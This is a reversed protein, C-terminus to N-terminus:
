HPRGKSGHKTFMHTADVRVYLATPSWERLSMRGVSQRFNDIVAFEPHQQNIFAVTGHVIIANGDRDFYTLSVSPNSRLYSLRLAGVDAPHYFKGRFFFVDVPTVRPKCKPTVTAMAVEVTEPLLAAIENATLAYKVPFLEKMNPSKQGALSRNLLEQLAALDEATEHM